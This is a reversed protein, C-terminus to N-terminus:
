RRALPPPPTTLWRNKKRNWGTPWLSVPDRSRGLCRLLAHSRKIMRRAEDEGVDRWDLLWSVIERRSWGRLYQLTVIERCPPPLRAFLTPASTWLDSLVVATDPDRASVCGIEEISREDQRLGPAPGPARRRGRAADLAIYRVVREVWARPAKIRNGARVAIWLRLLAEQAVDERANGDWRHYRSGYRAASRLAHERIRGWTKREISGEHVLPLGLTRGITQLATDWGKQTTLDCGFNLTRENPDAVFEIADRAVHTWSGDSSDFGIRIEADERDDVEVLTLGLRCACDGCTQFARRVVERQEMPGVWAGQPGDNERDFFYYHLLAGNGWKWMRVLGSRRACRNAARVSPAADLPRSEPVARVEGGHPARTARPKTKGM